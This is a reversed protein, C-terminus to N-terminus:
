LSYPINYTKQLQLMDIAYKNKIWYHEHLMLCLQKKHSSAYVWIGYPFYNTTVKFFSLSSPHSQTSKSVEKSM